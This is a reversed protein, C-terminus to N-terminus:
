SKYPFNGQIKQSIKVSKNQQQHQMIHVKINLLCFTVRFRRCFMIQMFYGCFRGQFQMPRDLTQLWHVLLCSM